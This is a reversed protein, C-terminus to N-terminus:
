PLGVGDIIRGCGLCRGNEMRVEGLTFGHRRIVTEGCGPCLTDEGRGGALNGEYVYFLGEERGIEAARRITEPPTAPRDKMRYSPHFRSVHWPIEPGLGRIFRAMDRLEGESDNHGPIVLTTIEIWIGLERYLRIADLVPALRAGCVQQYFDETFGKLDINAADLFPAVDRLPGPEIFGNTVFVTGMGLRRALVATDRAYEIWVTPETYTCAISRSGSQAALGVVEEPTVPRGPIDGSERPLQSIDANQCHRCSLICGVCAISFIATGPHWHFLPKKEVPDVHAAALRGWVLSVLAGGRNERVGCIGRHGPGVVCRHPCLGCRVRHGEGPLAEWHLAPHGATEPM